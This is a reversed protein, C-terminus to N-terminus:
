AIGARAEITAPGGRDRALVLALLWIWRTQRM